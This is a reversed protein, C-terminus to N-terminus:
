KYLTYLMNHNNVIHTVFLLIKSIFASRYTSALAAYLYYLLYVNCLSKVLPNLHHTPNRKAMKSLNITASLKNYVYCWTSINQSIIVPPMTSFSISINSM